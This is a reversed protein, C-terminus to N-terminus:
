ARLKPNALKEYERGLLFVSAVFLSLCLGPPVTWWWAQRISGTLYALYLMQGWSVKNPDGFGLFSISAEALVAWAVDFAVYLLTMPMVNPLIHVYLIRLDSAGAIKAAKVYGRERLSLVQSRIVRATTRWMLLSITIIINWLSPGLLAVLVVAFPIFPIGFALDTLRMLVTETRGGYYGAVLGVNTGILTIFFACAVGVIVVIRTGMILQSSVDLGYYTTGLWHKASPPQLRALQGNPLNHNVLPDYPVLWPAFIAVVIFAIFIIAAITGTATEFPVALFERLAQWARALEAGSRREATSSARISGAM